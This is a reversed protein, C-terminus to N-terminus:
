YQLWKHKSFPCLTVTGYLIGLIRYYKYALFWPAIGGFELWRMCPNLESAEWIICGYPFCGSPPPCVDQPPLPSKELLPPVYGHPNCVDQITPLCCFYDTVSERVCFYKISILLFQLCLLFHCIQLVWIEKLAFMDLTHWFFPQKM